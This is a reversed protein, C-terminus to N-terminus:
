WTIPIERCTRNYFRPVVAERTKWNKYSTMIEERLAGLHSVTSLGAPADFGGNSLDSVAATLAADVTELMLEFVVDIDEQHKAPLM